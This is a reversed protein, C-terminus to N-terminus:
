VNEGDKKGMNYADLIMTVPNNALCAECGDGDSACTRKGKHSCVLRSALQLLIKKEDAMTEGKVNRVINKIPHKQNLNKRVYIM